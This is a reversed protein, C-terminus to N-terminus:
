WVSPMLKKWATFGALSPSFRQSSSSTFPTFSTWSSRAVAADPPSIDLGPPGVRRDLAVLLVSRGLQGVRNRDGDAPNRHEKSRPDVGDRGGPLM